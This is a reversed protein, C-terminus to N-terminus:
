KKAYYFSYLLRQIQKSLLLLWLKLGKYGSYKRLYYIRSEFLIKMRKNPSGKENKIHRHVACVANSYYIKLNEYRVQKGLIAEESYLFVKEDFFNVSRLFDTKILFCCGSIRECYTSVQWDETFWKKSRLNKFLTIFWFLEEWYSLERQPNQHYGEPTIIDSACIAIRNDMLIVSILHAIYGPDPFEMDPNAILAFKYGKSAAYRLGINNGANYGRNEKSEILICKERDCFTRLKSIEEARSCNDVIIIDITVDVQKRLFSVCKLCDSFSNYNLLIVPVNM